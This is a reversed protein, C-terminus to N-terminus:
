YCGGRCKGGMKMMPRAATRAKRMASAQRGISAATRAKRQASTTTGNFAKKLNKGNKIVGRGKLIDAKTIKGDKNLDPFSGGKKAKKVVKIGVKGVNKKSPPMAPKKKLSKIMEAERKKAGPEAYDDYLKYYEKEVKPKISKPRTGPYKKTSDFKVPGGTQYKKIKGM